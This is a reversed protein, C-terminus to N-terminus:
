RVGEHALSFHNGDPKGFDGGWAAEPDLTKWYDGLPRYAESSTQYVGEVFLNVDIALRKTHLSNSIGAGSRANLAAQEPTRYCEGFTLEYGEGYAWLILKGVLEAFRRQKEGLTMTESRM